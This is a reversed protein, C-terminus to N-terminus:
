QPARICGQGTGAARAIPRRKWRPVAATAGDPPSRTDPGARDKLVDRGWVQPKKSQPRGRVQEPLRDAHSSQMAKEGAEPGPRGFQVVEGMQYPLQLRGNRRVSEHRAQGFASRPTVGVPGQGDNAVDFPRPAVGKHSPAPSCNATKSAGKARQELLPLRRTNAISDNLM